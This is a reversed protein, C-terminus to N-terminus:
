IAELKWFNGRVQSHAKLGLGGSPSDFREGSM